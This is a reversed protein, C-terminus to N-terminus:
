ESMQLPIKNADVDAIPDFQSLDDAQAAVASVGGFRM